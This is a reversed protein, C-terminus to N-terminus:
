CPPRGPAPPGNVSYLGPDKLEDLAANVAAQQLLVLSHGGRFPWRAKPMKAPALIEIARSRDDDLLNVREETLDIGLYQRIAHGGAGRALKEEVDHLDDILFSNLLEPTPHGEYEAEVMRVLCRPKMRMERPINFRDALWDASKLISGYSLPGVSDDASGILHQILGNKAEKSEDHFNSLEDFRRNLLKDLAYAFVSIAITGLALNGGDTLPKGRRDVVISAQFTATGPSIPREERRDPFVELLKQVAKRYDILGLIVEYYCQTGQPSQATRNNWPLEHDSLFFHYDSAGKARSDSSPRTGTFSQDYTRPSLVELVEWTRLIRKAERVRQDLQTM